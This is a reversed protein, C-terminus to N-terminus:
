SAPPGQRRRASGPPREPVSIGMKQLMDRMEQREKTMLNSFAQRQSSKCASLAQLDQAKDICPRANQLIDQRAQIGRREMAQRATFLQKAQAPTLKLREEPNGRSPGPQTEASAAIVTQSLVVPPALLALAAIVPFSRGIQLLRSRRRSLPKLANAIAHDTHSTEPNRSTM